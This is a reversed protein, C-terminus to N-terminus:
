GKRKLEDLVARSAALYPDLEKQLTEYRDKVIDNLERPYYGIKHEGPPYPDKHDNDLYISQLIGYHALYKGYVDSVGKDDVTFASYKQILATMEKGIRMIEDLLPRYVAHQKLAPMQDLLRFDVWKGTEDQPWRMMLKQPKQKSEQCNDVLKYNAEDEALQTELKEYIGKSQGILSQLPAVFHELQRFRLDLLKDACTMRGELLALEKQRNAEKEKLQDEHAMRQEERTNERKGSIWLVLVTIGGTLLTTLVASIIPNWDFGSGKKEEAFRNLAAIWAKREDVESFGSTNTLGTAAVTPRQNNTIAAPPLAPNQANTSFVVLLSAGGIISTM